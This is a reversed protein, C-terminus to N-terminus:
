RRSGRSSAPIAARLAAAAVERPRAADAGDAPRRAMSQSTDLVFLAQADTRVRLQTDHTLAPQAAALGLLRLAGVLAALARPRHRAVRRTCAFRRVSRAAGRRAAALAAAVLPLLSRRPRRAGRAADPVDDTARGRRAAAPQGADPRAPAAAATAASHARRTRRALRLSCSSTTSRSRTREPRRARRERLRGVATEAQSSDRGGGRALDGFALVGLLTAAQSARAGHGRAVAALADRRERAGRDRRARQRAAGHVSATARFLAIARRAQVDDDVALTRAALNWPLRPRRREDARERVDAALARVDAALLAVFSRSCSSCLAGSRLAAGRM